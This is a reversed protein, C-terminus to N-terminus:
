VDFIIEPDPQEGGFPRGVADDSIQAVVDVFGRVARLERGRQRIETLVEGIEVLRFELRKPVGVGLPDLFCHALDALHVPSTNLATAIKNEIYPSRPKEVYPACPPAAGRGGALEQSHHPPPLPPPRAHSSTLSGFVEVRANGASASQTSVHGVRLSFEPPM